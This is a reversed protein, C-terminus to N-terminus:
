FLKNVKLYNISDNIMSELSEEAKWNLESKAKSVDAWYEGLDGKRRSTINVPIKTGIIKEFVNLVEYVSFGKGSGLNWINIGNNKKIFQMAKIHGNILDNIHIYDRVGTGDQTDYDDGYIDLKTKEKTIIKLVSPVLNGKQYIINEGIIGSKHSGIPNFYRLIAVNPINIDSVKEKLIEEIIFKSIAYPNKPAENELGEHWPLPHSNQYVTASSSFIFNKVGYNKMSRLLCMTGIVNTSYYDSPVYESESVSKLGAFHAVTDIKNEDFIKNILFIDRIDGKVAKIQTQTLKSLKNVIGSSSRSYNDLIMVDYKEEILKVVFHSGIYGTGGTVLIM